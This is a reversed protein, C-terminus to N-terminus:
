YYYTKWLCLACGQSEHRACSKLNLTHSLDRPRTNLLTKFPQDGSLDYLFEHTNPYLFLAPDVDVQKDRGEPKECQWLCLILLSPWGVSPYPNLRNMSRVSVFPPALEPENWNEIVRFPSVCNRVGIWILAIVTENSNRKETKFNQSFKFTWFIFRASVSKSIYGTM